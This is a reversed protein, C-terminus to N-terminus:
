PPRLRGSHSSTWGARFWPCCSARRRRVCVIGPPQPRSHSDPHGPHRPRRASMGRRGGLQSRARQSRRPLWWMDRCFNRGIEGDLGWSTGRRVFRLDSRRLLVLMTVASVAGVLWTLFIVRGSPHGLFLLGLWALGLVYTLRGCWLAARYAVTRRIEEPSPNSMSVIPLTRCRLLAGARAARGRLPLAEPPPPRGGWGGGGPV